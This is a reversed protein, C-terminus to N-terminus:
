GEMDDNTIINGDSLLKVLSVKMNKVVIGYQSSIENNNKKFGINTKILNQDAVGSGIWIGYSNQVVKKYWDDYELQKLKDVRDVIIFDFQCTDKVSKIAEFFRKKISEDIKSM